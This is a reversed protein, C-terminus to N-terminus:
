LLNTYKLQITILSILPKTEHYINENFHGPLRFVNIISLNINRKTTNIQSQDLNIGTNFYSLFTSIKSQKSDPCSDALPSKKWM